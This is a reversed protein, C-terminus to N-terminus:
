RGVLGALRASTSLLDLVSVDTPAPLYRVGAGACAEEVEHRFRKVREEYAAAVSENVSLELRRGTERDRLVVRGRPVPAAEVRDVIHVLATSAAVSALEHLAEALSATPVLGDSILVALDAAAGANRYSRLSAPLDTGHGPALRSLERELGGLMRPADLRAGAEADGESLAWTRVADARLLAVAGLAAAVRQAHRLKSPRGHERAGAVADMSRSTDILLDLELHGEQPGVKVLLENLRLYVHWDLQRLDDGRTYARYDAFELAFGRRDSARAGAVGALVADLSVLTLRELAGLTGADLLEPAQAPAIRNEDQEPV